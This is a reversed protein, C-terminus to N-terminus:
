EAETRREISTCSLNISGTLTFPDVPYLDTNWARNRQRSGDIEKM